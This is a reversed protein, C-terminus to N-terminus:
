LWECESHQWRMGGRGRGRGGRKGEEEVVEKEEDEVLM